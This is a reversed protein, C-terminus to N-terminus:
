GNSKEYQTQYRANDALADLGQDAVTFLARQNQGLAKRKLQARADISKKVIGYAPDHPVSNMCSKKAKDESIADLAKVEQVTCEQIQLKKDDLRKQITTRSRFANQCNSELITEKTLQQELTDM